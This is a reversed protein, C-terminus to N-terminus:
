LWWASLGIATGVLGALTGGVVFPRWRVLIAVSLVVIAIQLVLSGTGCRDNVARMHEVQAELDRAKREVEDRDKAYRQAEAADRQVLAARAAQDGGALQELLEKQLTFTHEKISKAQYQSWRGAAQTAALLGDSSADNGKMSTISLIVAFVAVVIALRREFQDKLDQGDSM